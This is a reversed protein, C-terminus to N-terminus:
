NSNVNEHGASNSRPLQLHFTAGFEEGESAWLRGGHEEVITRCLSLGLGTGTSKTTFFAEFIHSMKDPAIGAGTDSIELLVNNDDLLSRISIRRPRNRRADMSELANTLLNILVRQIQVRNALIPPLTEDLALRLSVKRGAMERDLLGATERVLSNLGFETAAGPGKAFTARISKIVDFTRRVADVTTRMSEVAKQRDPKERDLWDLGASASLSVASLPQGVEHSIAAAVADMSMLRTERERNRAATSLALRAYLRNSEAILALMVVLHSFLMIGFLCYWGVTFRAELTLILLSQILWGSFSVLLWLDLVSTRKRFLMVTAIFFLAFIAAQYGIANAFILDSRNIFMPPLLAPEDTALMTVLVALAIAALVGAAIKPAPRGIGPQAASDASKLQVYLILAIPFAARRSTYIWATTNTSAGLLGHPAFAGPFTLAHPILLLAAFIFASALVTLARSRFVAAQSYLLTAIILEGVFMIGDITPIFADIERLRINRMPLIFFFTALLVGVMVLSLRIEQRDPPTDFLGLHDKSV